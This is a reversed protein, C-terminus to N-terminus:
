GFTYNKNLFNSAVNTRANFHIIGIIVIKTYM